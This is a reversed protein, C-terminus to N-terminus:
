TTPERGALIEGMYWHAFELLMWGKSGKEPIGALNFVQFEKLFYAIEDETYKAM